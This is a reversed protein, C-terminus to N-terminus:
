SPRATVQGNERDKVRGLREFLVDAQVSRGERDYAMNYIGSVRFGKKGLWHIIEDALPQGEYMELFSCECYVFDIFPLLPACGSLAELEFGQVDLKLLAPEVLKSAAIVDGLPRVKVRCTEVEHTGPFVRVQDKGIPLLSSCDDQASIHMREDGSRAGIAVEYLKVAPDRAFVHRYTAAAKPLPEFAFIGARPYLHRALISFQGRNAGLDLVSNCGLNRLAPLHEVSAAVRYRILTQAFSLERMLRWLKQVRNM